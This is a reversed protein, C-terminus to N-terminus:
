VSTRADPAPRKVTCGVDELSHAFSNIVMVWEGEEGPLTLTDYPMGDDWALMREWYFRTDENADDPLRQCPDSELDTVVRFLMVDFHTTGIRMEGQRIHPLGAYIPRVTIPSPHLTVLGPM